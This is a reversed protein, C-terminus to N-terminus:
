ESEYRRRRQADRAMTSVAYVHPGITTYSGRILLAAGKNVLSTAWDVSQEVLDGWDRREYSRHIDEIREAVQEGLKGAVTVSSVPREAQQMNRTANFNIGEEIRNRENRPRQMTLPIGAENLPRRVAEGLIGLDGSTFLMKGAADGHRERMAQHHGRLQAPLQRLMGSDEIDEITATILPRLNHKGIRRRWENQFFVTSMRGLSGVDGHSFNTIRFDREGEPREHPMHIGVTSGITHDYFTHFQERVEAGKFQMLTDTFDRTNDPMVEATADEIGSAMTTFASWPEEIAAEGLAAVAGYKYLRRSM